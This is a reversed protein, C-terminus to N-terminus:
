ARRRLKIWGVVLGLTGLVAISPEPIIPAAEGIGFTAWDLVFTGTPAGFLNGFEAFSPEPNFSLGSGLTTSVTGVLVNNTFVELVIPDDGRANPNGGTTKTVVVDLMPTGAVGIPTLDNAGRLSVWTQGNTYVLGFSYAGDNNPGADNVVQSYIPHTGTYDTQLGVRARMQWDTETNLTAYTRYTFPAFTSNNDVVVLQGGFISETNGGPFPGGDVRTWNNNTPVGAPAEYQLIRAAAPTTLAASALALALFILKSKM